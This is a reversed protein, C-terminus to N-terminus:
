DTKATKGGRKNRKLMSQVKGFQVKSILPEHKGEREIVDGYKVEGIYFRNRLIKWIGASSMHVNHQDILHNRVKEVSGRKIYQQFIHLVLYKKEDVEIEKTGHNWRYGLPARAGSKQGTRVVRNRRARYLRLSLEMRKYADLIAMMSNILYETPENKHLSFAPNDVSRVDRGLEKLQRTIIVRSYDDRWLRDTSSVVVLKEGDLNSLLELLGKRKDLHTETGSVGDDVFESSLEIDNERCFRRVMKKQVDLGEGRNSRGTKGSTRYYAVGQIIM